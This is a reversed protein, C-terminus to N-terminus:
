CAPIHILIYRVQGNWCIKHLAGEYLDKFLNVAMVVSDSPAFPGPVEHSQTGGSVSCRHQGIHVNGSQVLHHRM